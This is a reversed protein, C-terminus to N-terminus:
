LTFGFIVSGVQKCQQRQRTVVEDDQLLGDMDESKWQKHLAKIGIANARLTSDEGHVLEEEHVLSELIPEDDNRTQTHSTPTESPQQRNNQRVERKNKGKFSRQSTTHPRRGNRQAKQHSSGNRSLRQNQPPMAWSQGLCILDVYPLPNNSLHFDLRCVKLWNELSM